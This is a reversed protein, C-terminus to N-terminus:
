NIKSIELNIKNNLKIIENIDKPLRKKYKKFKNLNILKLVKKSIEHFKIKKNLYDNVINDNVTVLVTEFLSYHKPLDKLVEVIPFKIKNIQHLNLKNMKKLDVAVDKKYIRKNDYLSNFIPIKMNTEHFILKILSNKYVILSHAYSDPHVLIDLQKYSLNFINKAEILEYCKNMMTASDVSIKKGMQWNPHKLVKSMSVKKIYHFNYKLLPGGSATLYIKKIDNPNIKNIEQWITFHESDVPVFKVKNKDLERKIFLWGCILSEKNAIAIKKTFKIIKFTPILGDIGSISSLVYDLKKKLIKSLIELNNYININPNKNYKIAKKFSDNNFIILNKVKFIKAQKLINKYNKNASLLKIEITKPDVVSLLTKGISGTSGLIAIQKKKM